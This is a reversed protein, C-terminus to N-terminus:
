VNDRNISNVNNVCTYKGIDLNKVQGDMLMKYLLSRVTNSNKGLADAIDKPRKPKGVNKLYDIIEKKLVPIHSM